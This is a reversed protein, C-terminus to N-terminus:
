SLDNDIDFDITNSPDDYSITLLSSDYTGDMLLGSVDEIDEDSRSVGAASKSIWEYDGSANTSLLMVTTTSVKAFGELDTSSSAYLLDGVNWSIQGTGGFEVAIPDGNWVGAMVTGTANVLFQSDTDYGVTLMASPTNTGIGVKGDNGIYFVGGTTSANWSTMQMLPGDGYQTGWLLPSSTAFVAEVGTEFTQTPIVCNCNPGDWTGQLSGVFCTDANLVECGDGADIGSANCDYYNTDCQATSCDLYNNNAGTPYNTVGTRIECGNTFEEGGADCDLYGADCVCSCTGDVYNNANVGGDLADCNSVDTRVECGDADVISGDCEQYGSFCDGCEFGGASLCDTYTSKSSCSPDYNCWWDDDNSCLPEAAGEDDNYIDYCDLYFGGTDTGSPDYTTVSSSAVPYTTQITSSATCEIFGSGYIGCVVEGTCFQGSYSTPCDNSDTVWYEQANARDINAFLGFIVLLPMLIAFINLKRLFSNM